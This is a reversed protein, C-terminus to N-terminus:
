GLWPVRRGAGVNASARSPVPSREAALGAVGDRADRFWDGSRCTGSPALASYHETAGAFISRNMVLPSLDSVARRGDAAEISEGPRGDFRRPARPGRHVYRGNRWSREPKSFRFSPSSRSRCISDRLAAPSCGSLDHFSYRCASIIRPHSRSAELSGSDRSDRPGCGLRVLGAILAVFMKEYRQDYPVQSRATPRTDSLSRDPEAHQEGGRQVGSGGSRKDRRALVDTVIAM